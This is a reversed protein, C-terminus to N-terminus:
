AEGGEGEPVRLGVLKASRGDLWLLLLAGAAVTLAGLGAAAVGPWGWKEWALGPVWAGLAGAGYYASFYLATAVGRDRRAVDGVGLQTATYGAFMATAVLALGVVMVPLREPLTVLLGCAGAGVAALTLRRWGIREALRGAVPSALGVVWLFFVLSAASNGLSFPPEELRYAVYTFTGVFTFGPSTTGIGSPVITVNGLPSVTM